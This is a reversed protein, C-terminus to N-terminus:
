CAGGALYPALGIPPPPWSQTESVSPEPVYVRLILYFSKGAPSQLWYEGNGQAHETSQIWIMMGGGPLQDRFAPYYGNITYNKSGTVLNYDSGYLTISWFGHRSKDCPPFGDADIIIQYVNDGSLPQGDADVAANIYVAEQPDNACIGGLSQVAGRTIFDSSQGARGVDLPPYTWGNVQKGRGQSMKRLLALGEAAGRQLGARTAPSQTRPDLGPGIGITAFLALLQDQPIGPPLGPPNQTMSENMTLWATETNNYDIGAPQMVPSPTPPPTNPWLSLPTLRYNHQVDNAADVDDPANVGTRGLLLISNTRSRPLADQVNSATPPLTGDWGPGAILYNGAATGTSRTGVYAFNDADMCVMEICYFRDTVAPVSLVLPEAAVDLWANSYLTDCNPSGGSQSNDPNALQPSYHFFNIPAYLDPKGAEHSVERGKETAWLWRLQANYIWPFGYIYAQVALSYAYQEEWEAAAGGPASAGITAQDM